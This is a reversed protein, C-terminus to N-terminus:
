RRGPRHVRGARPGCRSAVGTRTRPAGMGTGVRTVLNGYYVDGTAKDWMARWGPPLGASLADLDPKTKFNLVTAQQHQAGAITSVSPLSASAAAGPAATAAAKEREKKEKKEKKGKKEKKERRGEEKAAKRMKKAAEAATADDAPLLPAVAAVPQVRAAAGEADADGDPQQQQVVKPFRSRWDGLPAFNANDRSAGTVEQEWKWRELEALRKRAQAGPDEAEAAKRASEEEEAELQKQAASWKQVLAGMRGGLGKSRKTGGAAGTGAGGGGGVAAVKRKVVGGAAAAVASTASTGVGGGSGAGGGGGGGLGSPVGAMNLLDIPPPAPSASIRTRGHDTDGVDEADEVGVAVPNRVPEARYEKRKLQPLPPKGVATAALLGPVATAVEVGTPVPPAIAPAAHDVVPAGGYGLYANVYQLAEHGAPTTAPPPAMGYAYGYMQSMYADYANQGYMDIYAAASEFGPPLPPVTDPPPSVGPATTGGGDEIIMDDGDDTSASEVLPPVDLPLPPFGEDHGPPLPPLPPPPEAPLPAPSSPLPPVAVDAGDKLLAPLPPEVGAAEVSEALAQAVTPATAVDDQQFSGLQYPHTTMAYSMDYRYLHAPWNYYGQMNFATSVSGGYVLLEATPTGTASTTAVALAAAGSETTLGQPPLDAENGGAMVGQTCGASRRTATEPLEGEEMDEEDAQGPGGGERSADGSGAIRSGSAGTEAVSRSIEGALGAGRSPLLVDEAMAAAALCPAWEGVQRSAPESELDGESPVAVAAAVTTTAADTGLRDITGAPATVSYTSLRLRQTEANAAPLAELLEKVRSVIHRELTPWCVADAPQGTVAAAAQQASLERWDAARVQAEVALRVLPPLDQLFCKAAAAAEAELAAMVQHIHPQPPRLLLDTVAQLLETDAETGVASRDVAEAEAGTGAGTGASAGVGATDNGRGASASAAGVAVGRAGLPGRSADGAQTRPKRCAATAAPGAKTSPRIADADVSRDAAAPAGSAEEEEHIGQGVEVEQDARCEVGGASPGQHLTASTTISSAPSSSAMVKGVGGGGEDMAEMHVDGATIVTDGSPRLSVTTAALRPLQAGFSCQSVAGKGDAGSASDGARTDEAISQEVGMDAPGEDHQPKSAEEVGGHLSGALVVEVAAVGDEAEVLSPGPVSAAEAHAGAEDGESVGGAGVRQGTPQLSGKLEVAEVIPADVVVASGGDDGGGSDGAKADEPPLLLDPDCGHPPKWAVEGTSLNWYYVKDSGTDLCKSWDPAHILYGLVKQEAAADESKSDPSAAAVTEPEAPTAAAGGGGATATVTGTPGAAAEDGGAIDGEGLLGSAELEHMFSALELDMSDQVGAGTGAAATAGAAKKEQARRTGGGGGGGGGGERGHAVASTGTRAEEPGLLSASAAVADASAHTHPGPAAGSGIVMGGSGTREEVALDEIEDDTSIEADKYGLLAALAGGGDGGGDGSEAPKEVVTIALGANAASAAATTRAMTPRQRQIRTITTTVLPFLPAAGGSGGAHDPASDVRLPRATIADSTPADTGKSAELLRLRKAEMAAAIPDLEEEEGDLELRAKKAPHGGRKM